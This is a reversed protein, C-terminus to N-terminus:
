SARRVYPTLSSKEDTGFYGHRTRVRIKGRGPAVVKVEIKRFSRAINAKEPPFGLTYQERLDRAIQKSIDTVDKKSDPFYAIGGTDKCLRRLVNPDEEENPDM